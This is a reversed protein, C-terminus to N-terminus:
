TACLPASTTRWSKAPRETREVGSPPSRISAGGSSAAFRAATSSPSAPSSRAAAVEPLMGVTSHRDAIDRFRLDERLGGPDGALRRLRRRQLPLLRTRRDPRPAPRRGSARRPARVRRPVGHGSGRHDTGAHHLEGTRRLRASPRRARGTQVVKTEDAVVRALPLGSVACVDRFGTSGRAVVTRAPEGDPPRRPGKM